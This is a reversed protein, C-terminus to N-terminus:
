LLINMTEYNIENRKAVVALYLIIDWFNVYKRLIEVRMWAM